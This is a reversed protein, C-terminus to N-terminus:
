GQNRQLSVTKGSVLWRYNPREDGLVKFLDDRFLAPVQFDAGLGHGEEGDRGATKEVFDADFIYLPSEDYPCADHYAAYDRMRTLVAEARFETEPFREAISPLTWRQNHSALAAWDDMAHTLIMPMDGLDQAHLTRADKRAINNAFSSSSAIANADYKAALYPLYLVDSYVDRIRISDTPISSADDGDAPKPTPKLFQHVYTSRWSGQWAGLKGRARKIYELKWNGETRTFAYFAPSVAQIRVLDRPPLESFITSLLEDSLVALRGLGPHRANRPVDKFLLNGLPECPPPPPVAKAAVADRASLRVRKAVPSAVADAEDRKSSAVGNGYGHM